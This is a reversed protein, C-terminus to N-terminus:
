ETCYTDISKTETFNFQWQKSTFIDRLYRVIPSTYQSSTYTFVINKNMDGGKGSEKRPAVSHDGEKVM